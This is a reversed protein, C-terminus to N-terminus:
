KRRCVKSPAPWNLAQFFNAFHNVAETALRGTYLQRRHVNVQADPALQPAHHDEKQQRRAEKAEKQRAESDKLLTEIEHLMALSSEARRRAKPNGMTKDNAWARQKELLRQQITPWDDVKPDLELLLYFNPREAAM